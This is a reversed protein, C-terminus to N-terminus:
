IWDWAEKHRETEWMQFRGTRVSRFELCMSFGTTKSSFCLGPEESHPHSRDDSGRLLAGKSPGNQLM